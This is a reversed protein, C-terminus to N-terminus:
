GAALVADLFTASGPNLYSLGEIRAFARHASALSWGRRRATAALVADFADLAGVDEFLALGELLDDAEPRILPGLAEAYARALAAAEPRPGRRARVHTFEQVVEVTTTARLIGERGLELVRRCPARLAHERGVAYVLVTTDLLIL